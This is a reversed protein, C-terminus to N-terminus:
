PLLRGIHEPEFNCDAAVELVRVHVWEAHPGAVAM